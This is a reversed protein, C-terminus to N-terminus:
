SRQVPVITEPTLKSMQEIKRKLHLCTRDAGCPLDQPCGLTKVPGHQSDSVTLVSSLKM